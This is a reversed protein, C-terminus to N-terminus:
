QNVEFDERFDKPQMSLSTQNDHINTQGVKLEEDFPCWMNDKIQNQPLYLCKPDITDLGTNVPHDPSNWDFGRYEWIIVEHQLEIINNEIDQAQKRWEITELDVWKMARKRLLAFLDYANENTEISEKEALNRLLAECIM